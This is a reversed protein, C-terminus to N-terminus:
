ANDLGFFFAIRSSSQSKQGAGGDPPCNSVQAIVTEIGEPLKDQLATVPVSASTEGAPITVLWPLSEYDTRPTASGSVHLWVPMSLETSGTRSVTFEGVLNLRRLPAATEEAIRRTAEISVTPVKPEQAAAHGCMSVIAAPLLAAHFRLNKV